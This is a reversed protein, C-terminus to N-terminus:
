NVPVWNKGDWEVMEGNPGTATPGTTKRPPASRGAPPNLDGYSPTGRLGVRHDQRTNELDVRNQQRYGELSRDNATRYDDLDLRRQHASPGSSRLVFDEAAQFYEESGPELGRTQAYIEFDEPGNFLVDVNGTTPDYQLRDRGITFPRSAELNSDYMSKALDRVEPSVYPNAAVALPNNNEAMLAKVVASSEAANEEEAKNARRERFGADLGQVVRTLDQTWHGIPSTDSALDGLRSAIRRQIDISEPTLRQGGAGWQFPADPQQQQPVSWQGVQQPLIGGVVGAPLSVGPNFVM